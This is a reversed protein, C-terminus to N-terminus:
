RNLVNNAQVSAYVELVRIKDLKSVSLEPESASARPLGCTTRLLLIPLNRRHKCRHSFILVDSSDLTKGSACCLHVQQQYLSYVALPLSSSSPIQSNLCSLVQFRAVENPYASNVAPIGM